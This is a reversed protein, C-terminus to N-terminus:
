ERSLFHSPMHAVFLLFRAPPYDMEQVVFLNRILLGCAGGVLVIDGGATRKKKKKKSSIRETNNHKTKKITKKRKVLLGVGKNELVFVLRSLRGGGYFFRKQIFVCAVGKV